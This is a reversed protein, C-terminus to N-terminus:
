AWEKTQPQSNKPCRGEGLDGGFFGPKTAMSRGCVGSVMLGGPFFRKEEGGLNEIIDIGSIAYLYHNIQLAMLKAKSCYFVLFLRPVRNQDQGVRGISFITFRLYNVWNLLM